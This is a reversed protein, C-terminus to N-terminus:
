GTHVRLLARVRRQPDSERTWNTVTVNLAAQFYRAGEDSMLAEDVYVLFVTPLDRVWLETGHPMGSVRQVQVRM